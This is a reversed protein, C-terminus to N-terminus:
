ASMDDDDGIAEGLLDNLRPRKAQEDDVMDDPSDTEPEAELNPDLYFPGNGAEDDEEEEGDEDVAGTEPMDTAKEDIDM